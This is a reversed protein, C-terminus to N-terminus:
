GTVEPKRMLSKLAYTAVVAGLITFTMDGMTDNNTPQKLLNIPTTLNEHLVKMRFQDSCLEGFEWAVAIFAVFTIIVVFNKWFRDHFLNVEPFKRMLWVILTSDMIGSLFHLAADYGFFGINCGLLVFCKQNSMLTPGFAGFIWGILFLTVLIIVASDLIRGERGSPINLRTEEDKM